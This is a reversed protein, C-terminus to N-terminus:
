IKFINKIKRLLNLLFDYNRHKVLNVQLTERFIGKKDKIEFSEVGHWSNKNRVFGFLRNSVPKVDSIKEFNKHSFYYHDLGNIETHNDNEKQGDNNLKYIQTGGCDRETNDNFGFYLLMALFKDTGDRHIAIGSGPQVRSIKVSVRACTKFIYDFLSIKESLKFIKIKKKLKFFVSYTEIKCFNLLLEKFNPLDYCLNLMQNLSDQEELGGCLLIPKDLKKKDCYQVGYSEVWKDFRSILINYEKKLEEYNNPEVFSDVIFYPFHEINKQLKYESNLM